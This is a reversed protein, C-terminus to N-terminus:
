VRYHKVTYCLEDPHEVRCPVVLAVGLKSNINIPTVPSPDYMFDTSQMCEIASALRLSDFHATVGGPYDLATFHYEGIDRGHALKAAQQDARIQKADPLKGTITRPRIIDEVKLPRQDFYEAQPLGAMPMDYEILTYTDCIYQKGTKEDTWAGALQPRGKKNMYKSTEKAFKLAAAFATKKDGSLTKATTEALLEDLIPQFFETVNRGTYSNVSNLAKTIDGHLKMANM